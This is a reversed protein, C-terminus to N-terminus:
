LGFLFAQDSASLDTVKDATGAFFWDSGASGTLTDSATDNFVTQGSGQDLLSYAGNLRSLFSASSTQDTLNAIRTAFSHGSSGEAMIACLAADNLDYATTGGLLIDNGGNGRMRDTVGDGILLDHSSGGVTQEDVPSAPLPATGSV